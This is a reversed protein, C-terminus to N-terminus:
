FQRVKELLHELAQNVTQARVDSRSPGPFIHKFSTSQLTEEEKSALGIYVLGVPKEASGGGPGAIGTVSVALQARDRLKSLAGAAMEQAVENSVAGFKELSTLQVDCLEHKAENSYTLFGGEFVASAGSIDTLAAGILGGTCSEVTVIHLQKQICSAIVEEALKTSQNTM